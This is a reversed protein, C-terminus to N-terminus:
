GRLELQRSKPNRQVRNREVVTGNPGFRTHIAGGTEVFELIVTSTASNWEMAIRGAGSPVISDPASTAHKLGIQDMAFDIAADVIEASPLDESRDASASKRWQLMQDVAQKWLGIEYDDSSIRAIPSPGHCEALRIISERSIGSGQGQTIM